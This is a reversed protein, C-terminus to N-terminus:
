KSEKAEKAMKLYLDPCVRHVDAFWKNGVARRGENFSTGALDGTYSQEFIRCDGLLRWMLRRGHETMVTRGIVGDEATFYHESAINAEIDAPTIRPATLGKAKIEQEIQQDSM